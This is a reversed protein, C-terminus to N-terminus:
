DNWRLWKAKGRIFDTLFRAFSRNTLYFDCIENNIFIESDIIDDVYKGAIGIEGGHTGLKERLLTVADVYQRRVAIMWRKGEIWVGCADGETSLHKKLFISTEKADIPPGHHKRYAPLREAELEFILVHSSEEDCWSSSRLVNFDNRILLKKLARETKYLQGWLVDPAECEGNFIVFILDKGLHELNYRLEGQTLPITDAPFFFSLQPNEFFLRSAMIFEGLRDELVAAAANRAEDIPDVVILPADFMLRAEGHRGEYHDELDIVEGLRWRSVHELCMRFSCYKLILIECLYGSFGGVKIEAGYVGVGRM